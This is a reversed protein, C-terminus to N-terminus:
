HSGENARSGSANSARVTARHVPGAATRLRVDRSDRVADGSLNSGVVTVILIVAPPYVLWWYGGFPLESTRRRPV